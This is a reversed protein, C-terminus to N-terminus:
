GPQIANGIIARANKLKRERELETDEDTVGINQTKACLQDVEKTTSENQAQRLLAISNEMSRRAEDLSFNTMSNKSDSGEISNSQSLPNPQQSSGASEEAAAAAAVQELARREGATPGQPPPETAKREFEKKFSGVSVGPLVFKKPKEAGNAGANMQQFKEATELIRSKRRENFKNLQSEDQLSCKRVFQQPTPATSTTPTKSTVSAPANAAAATAVNQDTTASPTSQNIANVLDATKHKNVFKKIVKTADKEEPSEEVSDLKGITKQRPPLPLQQEINTAEQQPVNTNTSNNQPQMLQACLDAVGEIDKKSFSATSKQKAAVTSPQEELTVDETEMPIEEENLPSTNENIFLASSGAKEKKKVAGAANETSITNQLKRKSQVPSQAPTITRTPSPM